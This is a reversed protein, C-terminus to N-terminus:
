KAVDIEDPIVDERSSQFQLVSAVVCINVLVFLYRQFKSIDLFLWLSIIDVVVGVIIPTYPFLPSM